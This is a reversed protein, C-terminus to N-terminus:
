NSKDWRLFVSVAHRMTAGTTMVKANNYYVYQWGASTRTFRLGALSVDMVSLSAQSGDGSPTCPGLYRIRRGRTAREANATDEPNTPGAAELYEEFETLSLSKDTMYIDIPGDGPTLDILNFSGRISLARGGLTM